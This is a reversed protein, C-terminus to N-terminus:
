SIHGYINCFIDSHPSLSTLSTKDFAVIHRSNTTVVYTNTHILYLLMENNWLGPQDIGQLVKQLSINSKIRHEALKQWVPCSSITNLGSRDAPLSRMVLQLLDIGRSTSEWYVSTFTQYFKSRSVNTQVSPTTERYVRTKLEETAISFLLCSCPRGETKIRYLQPM